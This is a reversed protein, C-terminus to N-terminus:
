VPMSQSWTIRGKVNLGIQGPQIALLTGKGRKQPKMSVRTGVMKVPQCQGKPM